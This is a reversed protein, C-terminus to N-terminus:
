VNGGEADVNELPRRLRTGRKLGRMPQVVGAGGLALAFTGEESKWAKGKLEETTERSSIRVTRKKEV